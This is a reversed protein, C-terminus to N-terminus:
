KELTQKVPSSVGNGLTYGQVAGDPFYSINTAYNGIRTARGLADPAYDVYQDPYHV